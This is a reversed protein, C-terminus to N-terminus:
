VSFGVAYGKVTGIVGEYDYSYVIDEDYGSLIELKAGTLRYPLNCEFNKVNTHELTITVVGAEVNHLSRNVSGHKKTLVFKVSGIKDGSGYWIFRKNGDVDYDLEMEVWDDPSKTDYDIYVQKEDANEITVTKEGTQYYPNDLIVGGVEVNLSEQAFVKEVEFQEGTGAYYRETHVPNPVLSVYCKVDCNNMDAVKLLAYCINLDYIFSQPLTVLEMFDAANKTYDDTYKLTISNITTKDSGVLTSVTSTTRYQLATAVQRNFTSWHQWESWEGTIKKIRCETIATAHGTTTQSEKISIIRATCNLEFVPSYFIQKYVDAYSYGTLSMKIKPYVESDDCSMAIIPFVRKGEFIRINTLELLESCTNGNELIEELTPNFDILRLSDGYFKYYEDEILFIIRIKSGDPEVVSINFHEITTFYTCDLPSKYKFLATKM